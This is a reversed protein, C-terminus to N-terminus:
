VFLVPIDRTSEQQKLRRCTEYGDMEPMHIDLIVLDPPEQNISNLAELGNVAVRIDYGFGSLMSEMVDLNSPNDDAIIISPKESDTMTM